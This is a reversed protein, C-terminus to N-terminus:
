GRGITPDNLIVQNFFDFPNDSHSFNEFVDYLVYLLKIVAGSAFHVDMELTAPNYFAKDVNADNFYYVMSDGRKRIKASFYGVSQATYTALLSSFIYM